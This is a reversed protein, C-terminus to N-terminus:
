MELRDQMLRSSELPSQALVKGKLVLLNRLFNIIPILLGTLLYSYEEVLFEILNPSTVRKKMGSFYKTVLYPIIGISQDPFFPTLKYSDRVKQM